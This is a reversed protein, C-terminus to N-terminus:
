RGGRGFEDDGKSRGRSEEDEHGEREGRGRSDDGDERGTQGSDDKRGTDDLQVTEDRGAERLHDRDRDERAFERDIAKDIERDPSVRGHVYYNGEVRMGDLSKRDLFVDGRDNWSSKLAEQREEREIRKDARDLARDIAVTVPSVTRGGTLERAIDDYSKGPRFVETSDKSRSELSDSLEMAKVRELAEEATLERMPPDGYCDEGKEIKEDIWGQLMEALSKPAAGEIWNDQLESLSASSNYKTYIKGEYEIREKEPIKDLDVALEFLEHPKKAQPEPQKWPPEGFVNEGHEHKANIWENLRSKDEENLDRQGFKELTDMSDFKSVCDDGDKLRDNEPIKDHDIVREKLPPMGFCKDGRDEKANIWHRLKKYVDYDLWKLDADKLLKNLSKLEELSHYKTYTERDTAYFKDKDNVKTIDIQDSAYDPIQEREESERQREPLRWDPIRGAITVNVHTNDTDRHINMVCTLKHGLREELTAIQARAYDKPDVVNEGPSLIMQHYAVKTGFNDLILKKAEEPELEDRDQTFFSKERLMEPPLIQSDDLVRSNEQDPDKAPELDKTSEKADHDVSPAPPEALNAKSDLRDDEKERQLHKDNIQYNIWISLRKSAVKNNVVFKSKIVVSRRMPVKVAPFRRGRPGTRGLRVSAKGGGGGGKGSALQSNKKYISWWSPPSSAM